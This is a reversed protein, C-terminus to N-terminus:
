ICEIVEFFRGAVNSFGDSSPHIENYWENDDPVSNRCNVYVVQPGFEKALASLRENFRNVLVKVIDRQLQNDIIGLEKKMPKALWDGKIGPVAYDYGHCLTKVNKFQSSVGTFITRYMSILEDLVETFHDNPYDSASYEPNFKKLNSAIKGLVDNGGGSILFIDASEQQIAPIYQDQSIMEKLDDGAAGLSYIAYRDFLHDITEDVMVPYLFWSDGESVIKPGSYGNKIMKKYKKKRKKHERKNWFEMGGLAEVSGPELRLESRGTLVPAFPKSETPSEVLYERFAWDPIDPDTALESIRAIVDCESM